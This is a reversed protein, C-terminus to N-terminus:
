HNAHDECHIEYGNSEGYDGPPLPTNTSIEYLTDVVTHMYSPDEVETLESGCFEHSGSSNTIKWMWEGGDPNELAIHCEHCGDDTHSDSCSILSVAVFFSLILNNTKM